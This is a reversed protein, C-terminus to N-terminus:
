VGTPAAGFFMETLAKQDDLISPEGEYRIAGGNMVYLYDAIKSAHRIDQEVLLIGMGSKKLDVLKDFITELKGIDLGLSPEDLLLLSPSLMLARGISLMQREGGSLLGAKQNLREGLVPFIHTIEDMKARVDRGSPLLYGGMELNEKVTMRPFTNTGQLVYSIGMKVIESTSTETIEKSNYRVRGSSSRVLGVVTSLFTTKGAGNPGILLTVKNESARISIGHIVESGAYGAKLRETELM